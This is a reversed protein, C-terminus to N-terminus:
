LKCQKLTQVEQITLGTNKAVFEPELGNNLLNKAIELKEENKGKLEGEEYALRRETNLLVKEEEEPTFIYQFEESNLKLLDEKYSEMFADGKCFNDLEKENLDLMILYKYENIKELNNNKYYEM